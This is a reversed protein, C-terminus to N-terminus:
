SNGAGEPMLSANERTHTNITETPQQTKLCVGSLGTSSWFRFAPAPVSLSSKYGAGTEQEQKSIHIARSFGRAM